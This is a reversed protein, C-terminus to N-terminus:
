RKRMIGPRKSIPPTQEAEAANDRYRLVGNRRLNSVLAEFDERLEADNLLAAILGPGETARQIAVDARRAASSIQTVAGEAKDVAAQASDLIPSVKESSSVLKESTKALNEGTKRFNELAVRLSETNEEGLINQNLNKVAASFEALTENFLALNEEGLISSDLKALASNLESLAVRMDDVVEKGAASLDGASDALASLGGSPTGVVTEGDKLYSNSPTRPPTIEVYSDGLFGASEISIKSDRPVPYEGFISLKIIAGTFDANPLPPASVRGITVGSFKVESGKLIGGASPNRLDITYKPRFTDGFNGFKLIM